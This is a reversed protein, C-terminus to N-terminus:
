PLLATGNAPASSSSVPAYLARRLDSWRAPLRASEAYCWRARWPLRGAMQLLLGHQLDWRVVVSVSVEDEGAFQWWWAQGDWRLDGVPMDRWQVFALVSGLSLSLLTGAMPWAAAGGRQWWWLCVGAALSWIGLLVAGARVSRAVPYRVAPASHM